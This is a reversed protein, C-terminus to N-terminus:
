VQRTKPRGNFGTLRNSLWSLRINKITKRSCNSQQLKQLRSDLLWTNSREVEQVSFLVTTIECNNRLKHILSQQMVFVNLVLLASYSILLLFLVISELRRATKRHMQNARVHMRISSVSDKVALLALLFLLLLCPFFLSKM